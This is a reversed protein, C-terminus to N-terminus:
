NRVVLDVVLPFHDSGSSAGTRIDVIGLEPSHLCHDIPIWFIPAFSPWSALFGQGRSGDKLGSRKLLRKFYYSWPTTNLDGLLLVPGELAAVYEGTRELQENRYASYEAGGPPLSHTALVTIVANCCIVEARISPVGVEGLYLIETERCPYRSFLAIGFNDLRVRYEHCPYEAFLPELAEIWRSNVEELVLLAPNEQRIVELVKVPDGNKTNVNMLMARLTPGRGNEISAGGFYLQQVVVGGNLLMLCLAGVAWWKKRGVAYCVALLAFLVTYQVRFHAGLDLWWAYRGVFGALSGIVALFGAATLLGWPRIKLRFFQQKFSM